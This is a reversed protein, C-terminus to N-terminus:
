PWVTECVKCYNERNRRAVWMGGCNPCKPMQGTARIGRVEATKLPATQAKVQPPADGLPNEWPTLVRHARANLERVTLAPRFEADCSPCRPDDHRIASGCESCEAPGMMIYVGCTPCGKLGKPVGAGCKGCVGAYDVDTSPRKKFIGLVPSHRARM